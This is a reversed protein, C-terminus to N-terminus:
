FAGGKIAPSFAVFNGDRLASEDSAPEGDVTVVYSTPLNMQSRLQQVSVTDEAFTFEQPTGGFLLATLKM